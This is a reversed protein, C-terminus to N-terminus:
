ENRLIAKIDNSIYERISDIMRQKEDQNPAFIVSKYMAELYNAKKINDNDRIEISITTTNVKVTSISRRLDGTFELDVHDTQLGNLSRFDKYSIGKPYKKKDLDIKRRGKNEFYFLPLKNESYTGLGNEESFVRQKLDAQGENVAIIMRDLPVESNAYDRIQRLKRVLDIM